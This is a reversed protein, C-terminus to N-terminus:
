CGSSVRRGARWRSRRWRCTTRGGGLEPFYQYRPDTAKDAAIVAPAHHSAVWGSVGEGVTVRVRGVQRDFPPTAGALTLAGGGDDLVHVFCM